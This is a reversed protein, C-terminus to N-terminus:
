YIGHWNMAQLTKLIEKSNVQQGSKNLAVIEDHYELYEEFNKKFEDKSVGLKKLNSWTDRLLNYRLEGIKTAKLDDIMNIFEDFNYADIFDFGNAQIQKIAKSRAKKMKNLSSNSSRLFRQMDIVAHALESKNYAYAGFKYRGYNYKFTKSEKVWKLNSRKMVDLRKNVVRRYNNYMEALEKRKLNKLKPIQYYTIPQLKVNAM